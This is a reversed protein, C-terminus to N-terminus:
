TGAEPEMNANYANHRTLAAIQENVHHGERTFFDGVAHMFQPDRFWHMSTTRVPLFGRFLKHEGQVGADLCRLQKGICYDITRYYCLEFHLNPYWGNCGWHRGYLTDSSQMTFSGAVYQNEKSALFLTINEPMDRVLSEFFPRTFRPEGWKREFTSCYFDHFIAWHEPTISEGELIEVILDQQEVSRREKRIQKRRKATLQGLFDDFSEYDHNHWHYQWTFRPLLGNTTLNSTTAESCFLFHLSSIDQEACRKQLFALMRSFVKGPHDLGSVHLLRPGIVPTFPIASVLKPYYGRGAHYYADAIMYDFVFEGHSNTKLYLPIAAVPIEGQYAITHCPIWGHAELDVLTELNNLFHWCLFPNNDTNLADWRSRSIDSIRDIQRLSFPEDVSM